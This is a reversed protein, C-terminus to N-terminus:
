LKSGCLVVRLLASGRPPVMTDYPQSHQGLAADTWVDTVNFSRTAVGVATSGMPVVPPAFSFRAAVDALNFFGVTFTGNGYDTAWTQHKTTSSALPVATASTEANVALVGSNGLLAVGGRDIATLDSGTYMPAGVLAWFSVYTQQEVDGLGGLGGMGVNIADLDPRGLDRGAGSHSLWPAVLPFTRAIANWRVLTECYCDVDDGVRWSNAAPAFTGAAAPDIAWSIAVWVDRGTAELARSWEIVDRSNDITGGSAPSNGSGPSVADIKLFDIGVHFVLHRAFSEIYAKACSHSWDIAYCDGFVSAGTRPTVAIQDATCNTGEIPTKQKVAAVAVGPNLYLGFKQGRAHVAAAVAALGSPFRTTNHTWRGFQDVQETPDAAWFSDVNIHDFGGAVLAGLGPRQALAASQVLVNSENLWERGYIPHGKVASLDWSTWGRFPRGGPGVVVKAEGVSVLAALALWLLVM